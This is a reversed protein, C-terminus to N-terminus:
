IFKLNFHFRGSVQSGISNLKCDKILHNLQADTLCSVKAVEYFEQHSYKKFISDYKSQPAMKVLQNM